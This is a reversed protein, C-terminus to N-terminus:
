MAVANNVTDGGFPTLEMLLRSETECAAGIGSNDCM